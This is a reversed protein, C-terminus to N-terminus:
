RRVDQLTEILKSPSLRPTNTRSGRGQTWWVGTGDCSSCAGPANATPPRGTGGCGDCRESSYDHQGALLTAKENLDFRDRNTAM